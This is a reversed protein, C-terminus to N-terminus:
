EFIIKVKTYTSHCDVAGDGECLSGDQEGSSLAELNRLSLTNMSQSSVQFFNVCFLGILGIVILVNKKKM